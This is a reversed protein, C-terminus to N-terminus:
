ALLLGERYGIIRDPSEPMFVGPEMDPKWEGDGDRGLKLAYATLEDSPNLWQVSVAHSGTVADPTNGIFVYVYLKPLYGEVAAFGDVEIAMQRFSGLRVHQWALQAGPAAFGGTKISGIVRQSRRLIDVRSRMGLGTDADDWRASVETEFDGELLAAAKPHSRFARAMQQALLQHDPRIEDKGRNADRWARLQATADKRIIGEGGLRMPLREAGDSDDQPIRNGTPVMKAKGGRPGVPGLEMEDRLADRRSPYFAWRRRREEPSDLLLSHAYSGLAMDDTPPLGPKGDCWRAFAAPSQIAMKIASSSYRARDGHYKGEQLGRLWEGSM